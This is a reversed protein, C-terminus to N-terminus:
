RGGGLGLGDISSLRTGTEGVYDRCLHGDRRLSTGILTPAYWSKKKRWPKLFTKDESNTQAIEESMFPGKGPKNQPQPSGEEDRVCCIRASPNVGRGSKKM